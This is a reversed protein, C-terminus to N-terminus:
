YKGTKETNIVQGGKKLMQFTSLFLPFDKSFRSKIETEVKEMVGVLLEVVLDIVIKISIFFCSFFRYLGGVIFSSILGEIKNIGNGM